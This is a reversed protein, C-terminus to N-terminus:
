TVLRPSIQDLWAFIGIVANSPLEEKFIKFHLLVKPVGNAKSELWWGAQFYQNQQNPTLMATVMGVEHSPM